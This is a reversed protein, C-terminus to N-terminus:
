ILIKNLWVPHRNLFPSGRPVDECFQSELRNWSPELCYFGTRFLLLILTERPVERLIRRGVRNWVFPHRNLFPLGRPVDECFRSDQHNSSPELGHSSPEDECFNNNQRNWSTPHTTAMVEAINFFPSVKIVGM